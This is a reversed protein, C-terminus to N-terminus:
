FNPFCPYMENKKMMKETKIGPKSSEFRFGTYTFMPVKENRHIPVPLKALLKTVPLEIVLKEFILSIDTNFFLM